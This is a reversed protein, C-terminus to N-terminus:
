RLLEEYLSEFAHTMHEATYRELVLRRGQEALRRRLPEDALLKRIADALADSDDQPVLLGTEEHRVAEGISGVDTAVVAVSALLAELVALPFGEFRSPFAFVDFARLYSRADDRWGLWEVREAVGVKSALQELAARESGEGVLVLTAGEIASLARMLVDYGKQPELRGISGIVPGRLPRPASDRTETPVGNHITLVSGPPLGILQEVERSTREGVGVHRDVGRSMLRKMRLQGRSRAPRPLQYVAVTKPRRLLGAAAIAYQCSWPSSLNAHLIDPGIERLADFHARLSRWDHGSRPRPVVMTRATSRGAAVWAAIERTVGVVTVDVTPDLRALLHSMSTDAGGRDLNDTYAVLRV